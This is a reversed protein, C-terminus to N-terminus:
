KVSVDEDALVYIMHPGNGTVYSYFSHIMHIKVRFHWATIKKNYSVESLRQIHWITQQSIIFGKKAKETFRAFIHEIRLSPSSKVQTVTTSNLHLHLSSQLLNLTSGNLYLHLSSQLRRNFSLLQPRFSTDWWIM